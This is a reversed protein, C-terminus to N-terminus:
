VHARGIQKEQYRVKANKGIYFSHVGDHEAKEEGENHVGCGAVITVDAGEGIYFDNYVLDTIGAHTVCAPIYVTEGKTYPKVIIDIGPQDTKTKITINESNQRGACLSDERINFAGKFEGKFDSVIELLKETISNMIGGFRIECYLLFRETEWHEHLRRIDCCSLARGREM